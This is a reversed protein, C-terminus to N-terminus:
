TGSWRGGRGGAFRHRRRAWREDTRWQSPGGRVTVRLRGGEMREADRTLAGGTAGAACRGLQRPGPKRVASLFFIVVPRLGTGREEDRQSVPAHSLAPARVCVVRPKTEAAWAMAFARTRVPLEINLRLSPVSSCYLEHLCLHEMSPLPIACVQSWRAGIV